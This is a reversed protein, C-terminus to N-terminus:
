CCFNCSFAKFSGELSCSDLGNLSVKFVSERAGAKTRLARLIFLVTVTNNLPKCDAVMTIHSVIIHTEMLWSADTTFLKICQAWKLQLPLVPQATGQGQMLPCQTLYLTIVWISRFCFSFAMVRATRSNRFSLRLAIIWRRKENVSAWHIFLKSCFAM